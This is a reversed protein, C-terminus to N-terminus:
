LGWSALAPAEAYLQEIATRQHQLRSPSGDHASDRVVSAWTDAATATLGLERADRAVRDLEYMDGALSSEAHRVLLALLGGGAVEHADTLVACAEEKSHGTRVAYHALMGAFYTHQAALLWRSTEVLTQAADAARGAAHARRAETWRRLMVVKPDNQATIPIGDFGALPDAGRHGEVEASAAARLAQAAPLLGSTDRWELHEVASLALAHARTADGSLLEGFGLAYEWEGLSEPALTRAEAFRKRLVQQTAAFDGSYSLAMAETLAVLTTGGPVLELVERPVRDLQALVRHAEDLPGTIVGSMASTILGMVGAVDAPLELPPAAEGGIGAVAMWRMRARHLHPAEAENLEDLAREVIQLARSADHLRLGHHEAHALAVRASEAPTRAHRSADAFHAEAADPLRLVSAAIGAIRHADVNDPERAIVAEAARLALGEDFAGLAREALATTAAADDLDGLGLALVQARHQAHPMGQALEGTLVQVAERTLEHWLLESSRARLVERDMPDALRLWGTDSLMLAGTRALARRQSPGLADGPYEGAIAVLSMADLSAADLEDFREGALQALRASPVPDGRLEWGYDTLVLRASDQSGTIFERLRLPSGGAADLLRRRTDPTLPGGTIAVALEAAESESLTSVAVETLDGSDYLSRLAEPIEALTRAAIVVLVRATVILQRVVFLSSDDLLDVNDVLLVTTSRHRALSDIVDAPTEWDDSLSGAVGAFVGLPTGQSLSSASLLPALCHQAELQARVSRLLHTKGIGAPGTVLLARRQQLMATLADTRNSTLPADPVARPLPPAEPRALVPKALGPQALGPQALPLRLLSESPEDQLIGVHIRGLEGNPEVGFRESFITRARAYAALAEQVQGDRYLAVMLQGWFREDLPNEEVLAALEPILDAQHGLALDIDVRDALTSAWMKELRASEGQLTPVDPIDAFAPGRWLGLAERLRDAAQRLVGDELLWGGEDRFKEFRAIDTDISLHDLRYGTGVLEIALKPLMSRLRSVRAQLAHLPDRPARNDSLEDCLQAVSVPRGRAVMLRALLARQKAGGIPYRRENERVEM